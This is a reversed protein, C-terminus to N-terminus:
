SATFTCNFLGLLCLGTMSSFVAGGGGFVDLFRARTLVTATSFSSAAGVAVTSSAAGVCGAVCFFCRVCRRADALGGVGSGGRTSSSESSSISSESASTMGKLAGTSFDVRGERAAAMAEVRTLRFAAFFGTTRSSAGLSESSEKITSSSTM